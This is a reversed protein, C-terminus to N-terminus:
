PNFPKNTAFNGDFWGLPECSNSTQLDFVEGVFIEHTGFLLTTSVRCFVNAPADALYPLGHREQWADPSFRKARMESNSFLGVLATHNVGLLNICFSGSREVAGHASANRNISVLMSPPELSVPVVASAALGAPSGDVPDRTSILAVASPMRRLASKLNTVLELGAGAQWGDNSAGAIENM